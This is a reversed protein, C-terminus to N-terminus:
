GGQVHKWLILALPQGLDNRALKQVIKAVSDCHSFMSLTVPADSFDSGIIRGALTNASRQTRLKCALSQVNRNIRLRTNKGELRTIRRRMEAIVIILEDCTRRCQMNEQESKALKWQLEKQEEERRQRYTRQAVRNLISRTKESLAHVEQDKSTAHDRGARNQPPTTMESSSSSSSPSNDSTQDEPFSDNTPPAAAAAAATTTCLPLFKNGVVNNFTDDDCYLFYDWVLEGLAFSDAPTLNPPIFEMDIDHVKAM